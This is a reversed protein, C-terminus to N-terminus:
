SPANWNLYSRCDWGTFDCGGVASWREGDVEVEWVWESEDREGQSIMVLDTVKAGSVLPGPDNYTAALMLDMADEGPFAEELAEGQRRASWYNDDGGVIIM